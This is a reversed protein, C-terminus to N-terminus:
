KIAEEGGGFGGLEMGMVSSEAPSLPTETKKSAALSYGVIIGLLLAIAIIAILEKEILQLIKRKNVEM